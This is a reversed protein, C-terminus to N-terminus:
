KIRKLNVKITSKQDYTISYLWKGAKYKQSWGWAASRLSCADVNIYHSTEGVKLNFDYKKPRGKERKQKQEM